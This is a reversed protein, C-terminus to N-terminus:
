GRSLIQSGGVIGESGDPFRVWAKNTGDYDPAWLVLTAEGRQNVECREDGEPDVGSWVRVFPNNEKEEGITTPERHGPHVRTEPPLGMYRDMISGRLDEIGTAGPAMTGGVTGKFLTDATVLDTGDILFALHGAAHGPTFIAEIELDGSKIRAGDDITEDVKFDVREATVPHALIPVGREDALERLGVVHDWHDHTLLIHTLTTGERDLRELLPEIVGNGDILVGHGGPHDIVLYANSLWDSQEVRQLIM